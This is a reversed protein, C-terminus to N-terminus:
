EKNAGASKLEEVAAKLAEIEAGQEKITADRRRIKADLNKLKRDIEGDAGSNADPAAPGIHGCLYDLVRRLSRNGKTAHGLAAQVEADM